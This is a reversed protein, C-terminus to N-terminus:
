EDFHEVWAAIFEETDGLDLSEFEELEHLAAEMYTMGDEEMREEIADMVEDTVHSVDISSDVAVLFEQLQERSLV